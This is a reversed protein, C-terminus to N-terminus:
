EKALRLVGTSTLEAGAAKTEAIYSEFVAEPISAEQQWRSSQKRSVGEPLTAGTVDHSPLNKGPTVAEELMDGLRREIRLKLEAANNQIELSYKQRKAYDAVTAVQDRLDTLETVTRAEALM